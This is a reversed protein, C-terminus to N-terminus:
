KIGGTAFIWALRPLFVGLGMALGALGLLRAKTLREAIGSAEGTSVPLRMLMARAALLWLSFMVILTGIPAEPIHEELCFICHHHPTRLLVPSVVLHLVLLFLPVEALAVGFLALHTRPRDRIALGAVIGLGLLFAWLWWAGHDNIAPPIPGGPIDFLSHCCSVM